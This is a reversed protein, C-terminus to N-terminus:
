KFMKGLLKRKLFNLGSSFYGIVCKCPSSTKKAWVFSQRFKKAKFYEKGIQSYHSDYIATQKKKDFSDIIFKLRELYYLRNKEFQEPSKASNRFILFKNLGVDEIKAVKFHVLVRAIFEWDQHRRFTEDFGHVAEFASKRVMIFSSGMRVRSCMFDFLIDGEYKPTIIEQRGDKHILCKACYTIGYDESLTEFKKIHNEINQPRFEDDDDLFAIFEGSSAKVGTNRAASGNINVEHTLYIVKGDDIHKKLVAQTKLQEETGRGNDDVVIIEVNEYTQNLVSDVSRCINDSGKYSPIVVSVKKSM